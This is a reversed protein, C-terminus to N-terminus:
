LGRAPPPLPAGTGAVDALVAALEAVEGRRLRRHTPLNIVHAAAAEGRPCTGEVYGAAAAGRGTPHTVSSFWSGIEVRGRRGRAIAEHKHEVWVPYRLYIAGEHGSEDHRRLRPIGACVASLRAANRQRRLNARDLRRLQLRALAAQADSLRSEYGPPRLGALEEPAVADVIFGARALYRWVVAGLTSAWPASFLRFALHQVLLRRVEAAGPARCRSRFEDLSRALDRDGTVAVGGRVAAIVKSQELSFFAATGFTGVRRGRYRAGLAHACDEIMHLGYKEVLKQAGQVDGPIGFNHSLVFAKTRETIKAEIEGVDVNLSREDIDAYVPRAGAYLVANPVVVCTFGPVIVEAGRGIGLGELLAYLSLRGSGFCVARRVPLYREWERELTEVARGAVLGPGGALHRLAVLLELPSGVGDRFGVRRGTAFARALEGTLRALRRVVKMAASSLGSRAGAGGPFPALPDRRGHHHRAERSIRRAPPAPRRTWPSRGARPLADISRARPGRRSPSTCCPRWGPRPPCVCPWGACPPSAM